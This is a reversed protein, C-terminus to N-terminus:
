KIVYNIGQDFWYKSLKGLKVGKKVFQLYAWCVEKQDHDPIGRTRGVDSLTLGM